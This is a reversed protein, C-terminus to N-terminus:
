ICMKKWFLYFAVLRIIAFIKMIFYWTFDDLIILGGEEIIKISNLFDEEVDKSKHSGDIYIVNFKKM